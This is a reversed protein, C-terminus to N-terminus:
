VTTRYLVIQLGYEVLQSIMLSGFVCYFLLNGNSSILYFGLSMIVSVGLVLGSRHSARVALQREREDLPASAETPAMIAIVIHGAIAVAILIATYVAVLPLMPPVLRGIESSIRAVVGFYFIGGVLLAFSMIWASKEHFAM